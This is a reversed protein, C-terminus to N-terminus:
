SAEKIATFLIYFVLFSVATVHGVMLIILTEVPTLSFSVFSYVFAAYYVALALFTYILARKLRLKTDTLPPPSYVERVHGLGFCKDCIDRRGSEDTIAGVGNCKDCVLEEELM